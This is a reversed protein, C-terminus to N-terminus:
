QIICGINEQKTKLQDDVAATIFDTTMNGASNRDVTSNNNSSGALDSGSNSLTYYEVVNSTGAEFYNPILDDLENFDFIIYFRGLVIENIREISPQKMRYRTINVGKFTKTQELDIYNTMLVNYIGSNLLEIEVDDNKPVCRIDIRGNNYYPIITINELDHEM